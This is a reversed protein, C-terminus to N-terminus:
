GLRSQLELQPLCLGHEICGAPSLEGIHLLQQVTPAGNIHTIVVLACAEHQCCHVAVLYTASIYLVRSPGLMM